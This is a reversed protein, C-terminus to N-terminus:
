NELGLKQLSEARLARKFISTAEDASLHEIRRIVQASLKGFKEELLMLLTRREGLLQGQVIGEAIGIEEGQELGKEYPTINM